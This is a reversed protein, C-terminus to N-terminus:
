ETVTIPRVVISDLKNIQVNVKQVYNPSVTSILTPGSQRIRLLLKTTKDNKQLINIGKTFYVIAAM